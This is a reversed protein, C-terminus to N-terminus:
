QRSIRGALAKCKMEFNSRLKKMGAAKLSLRAPCSQQVAGQCFKAKEIRDLADTAANEIIILVAAATNRSQGSSNRLELTEVGHLFNSSM